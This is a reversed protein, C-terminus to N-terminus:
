EGACSMPIMRCFLILPLLITIFMKKIDMSLSTLPAFCTKLQARHRLTREAIYTKTHSKKLDSHRIIDSNYNINKTENMAYQNLSYQKVVFDYSRLSLSSMSLQTTQSTSSSNSNSNSNSNPTPPPLSLLKNLYFAVPIGTDTDDTHTTTECGFRIKKLQYQTSIFYTEVRIQCSRTCQDIQKTLDVLKNRLVDETIENCNLQNHSSVINHDGCYIPVIELDANLKLGIWIIRTFLPSIPLLIFAKRAGFKRSLIFIQRDVASSTICDRENITNPLWIEFWEGDDVDTLKDLRKSNNVNVKEINFNMENSYFGVLNNQLFACMHSTNEFSCRCSVFSTSNSRCHKLQPQQASGTFM